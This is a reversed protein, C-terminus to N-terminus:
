VKNGDFCQNKCESSIPMIQEQCTCHTIAVWVELSCLITATHKYVHNHKIFLTLKRKWFVQKHLRVRRRAKSSSSNSGQSNESVRPTPARMVFLSRLLNSISSKTDISSSESLYQHRKCVAKKFKSLIMRNSIMKQLCFLTKKILYRKKGGTHDPQLHVQEHLISIKIHLIITKTAFLELVHKFLKLKVWYLFSNWASNHFTM